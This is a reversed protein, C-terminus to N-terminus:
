QGGGPTLSTVADAWATDPDPGWVDNGYAEMARAAIKRAGEPGALVEGREIQGLVRETDPSM